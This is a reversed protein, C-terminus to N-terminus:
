KAFLHFYLICLFVSATSRVSNETLDIFRYISNKFYLIKSLLLTLNAMFTRRVTLYAFLNLSVLSLKKNYISLFENTECRKTTSWFSKLGILYSPVHLICDRFYLKREWRLRKLFFIERMKRIIYIYIYLIDHLIDHLINTYYTMYYTMYIYYIYIYIINYLFSGWKLDIKLWVYRIKPRDIAICLLIPTWIPTLIMWLPRASSSFFNAYCM